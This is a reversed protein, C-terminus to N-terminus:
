WNPYDGDDGGGFHGLVEFSAVASQEMNMSSIDILSCLSAPKIGADVLKDVTEPHLETERTEHNFNVSGEVVKRGSMDTVSFEVYSDTQSNHGSWLAVAELKLPVTNFQNM